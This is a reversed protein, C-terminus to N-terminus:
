NEQAASSPLMAQAEYCREIFHSLSINNKDFLPVVELANRLSVQQSNPLAMENNIIPNVNEEPNDNIPQEIQENDTSNDM